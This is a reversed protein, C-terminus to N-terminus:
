LREDNIVRGAEMEVIRNCSSRLLSENHSAIVAIGSQAVFAKMREAALERFEKDGAGLWEDLLLIDCPLATSIAFALRARMGRSYTRVPHHVADGLGSFAAIEDRCQKIEELPYGLSLGRLLINEYGSGEALLGAGPQLILRTQGAIRVEGAQPSYSGALIKLLTTKGAGNAGVLGIRDGVQATLSIDDIVTHWDTRLGGIRYISLLRGLRGGETRQAAGGRARIPLQLSVDCLSIAAMM